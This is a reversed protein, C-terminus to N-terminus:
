KVREKRRINKAKRMRKKRRKAEFIKAQELRKCVAWISKSIIRIFNSVDSNNAASANRPGIAKVTNMKKMTKTPMVINMEM